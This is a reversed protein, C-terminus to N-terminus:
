VFNKYRSDSTRYIVRALLNKFLHQDFAYRYNAEQTYQLIIAFYYMMIEDVLQQNENYWTEFTKLNRSSALIPRLSTENVNAQTTKPGEDPDDVM